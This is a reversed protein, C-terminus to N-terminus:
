QFHASSLCYFGTSSLTVTVSYLIIISLSGYARDRNGIIGGGATSSSTSVNGSGSGLECPLDASGYATGGGAHSGSYFADGGKGGHGGGGSLGSSLMRGRGIGGRCGLGTASITGSSRVTVNRARNFNIVTGQVLGSVVIDEVRCIQLTFSLSTNLNCDEPPHFIEM